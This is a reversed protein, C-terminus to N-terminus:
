NNFVSLRMCCEFRVIRAFTLTPRWVFAHLSCCVLCFWHRLWESVFRSLLRSGCFQSAQRPLLGELMELMVIVMWVRVIAEDVSESVCPSGCSWREFFHETHQRVSVFSVGVFLPWPLVGLSHKEVVSVKSFAHICTLIRDHSKRWTVKNIWKEPGFIPKVPKRCGPVFLLRDPLVHDEFCDAILQGPCISRQNWSPDM